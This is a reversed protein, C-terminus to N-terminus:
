MGAGAWGAILMLILVCAMAVLGLAFYILTAKIKNPNKKEM